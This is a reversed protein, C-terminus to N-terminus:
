DIKENQEGKKNKYVKVLKIGYVLIDGNENTETTFRDFSEELKNQEILEEKVKNIKEQEIKLEERKQKVTVLTNNDNIIGGRRYHGYKELLEKNEESAMIFRTSCMKSYKKNRYLLTAFNHCIRSHSPGVAIMKIHNQEDNAYALYRGDGLRCWEYTVM